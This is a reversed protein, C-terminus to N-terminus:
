ELIIRQDVQEWIQPSHTALVILRQPSRMSFLISLIDQATKPDLSATPEDAIILPPNKLFLKALAVRQAEGGSLVFIPDDLRSPDLHVRELAEREREEREKKSIKQGVLGLDLNDRIRQNDLLGFNQFLYGLETRFFDQVKMDELPKDRYFISGSDYPELRAMINLLTTKGSGSKGTIAYIRNSEFHFHLDSFIIHNEFKKNLKQIRM